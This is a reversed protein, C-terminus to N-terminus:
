FEIRFEMLPCQGQLGSFFDTKFHQLQRWTILFYLISRLIISSHIKVIETVKFIMSAFKEILFNDFFEHFCLKQYLATKVFYKKTSILACQMCKVTSIVVRVCKHWFNRSLLTKVLYIVLSNIQRFKKETFFFNENKWLTSSHSM